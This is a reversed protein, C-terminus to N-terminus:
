QQTPSAKRRVRVNPMQNYRSLSDNGGSDRNLPSEYVNDKRRERMSLQQRDADLGEGNNSGATVGNNSGATGLQPMWGGSMTTTSSSDHKMLSPVSSIVPAVLGPPPIDTVKAPPASLLAQKPPGSAGAASMQASLKLQFLVM